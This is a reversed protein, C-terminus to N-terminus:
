ANTLGKQKAIWGAVIFDPEDSDDTRIIASKPFWDTIIEPSGDPAKTTPHQYALRIGRDTQRKIVATITVADADDASPARSRRSGRSWEERQIANVDLGAHGLNARNDDLLMRKATNFQRETLGGYQEAGDLLSNAFSRASDRTATSEVLWRLAALVASPENPADTPAPITARSHPAAGPGRIPARTRRVGSLDIDTDRKTITKVEVSAIPAAPEAPEDDWGWHRTM